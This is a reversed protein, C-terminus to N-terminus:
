KKVKTYTEKYFNYFLYFNVLVDLLTVFGLNRNSSSGAICAQIVYVIMIVFQVMQILTIYPKIPRLVSTMTEGFSSLLYYSYMIVHVGCNLVILTLALEYTFYRAYLWSIWVTTIHHYIHLFSIQNQKKRLIFIGTEVLDIAKLGLGAWAVYAIEPLHAKLELNRETRTYILNDIGWGYRILTYVNWANVVIQSINFYRIFTKLKYAPKNQMYKPGCKLVFYLYSFTIFALPLASNKFIWNEVVLKEATQVHIDLESRIM